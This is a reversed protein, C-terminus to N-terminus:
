KQIRKFIQLLETIFRNQHRLWFNSIIKKKLLLWIGVMNLYIIGIMIICYALTIIILNSLILVFLQNEKIYEIPRRLSDLTGAVLLESTTRNDFREKRMRHMLYHLTRQVALHGYRCHHLLNLKQRLHTSGVLISNIPSSFFFLVYSIQLFDVVSYLNLFFFYKSEQLLFIGFIVDEITNFRIYRFVYM